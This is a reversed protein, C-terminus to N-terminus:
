KTNNMEYIWNLADEENAFFKTPISPKEVHIFFNFTMKALHTKIIFAGMSIGKEGEKSMYKRADKTTSILGNIDIVIPHNEGKQFELRETVLQKAIDLTIETGNKFKCFLIGDKIWYEAWRNKIFRDEERQEM